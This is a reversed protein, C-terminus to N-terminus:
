GNNKIFEQLENLSLPKAYFYGQLVDCKHEKLWDVEAQIEVGEAVVIADKHKSIALISKILSRDHASKTIQSIFYRDIKIESVPIKSIYSLSSYGTGFDDLSIKFGLSNLKYLIESTKTIDHIMVGETIELTVRNPAIKTKEVITIINSAFDDQLLEVPSINVSLNLNENCNTNVNLIELCATELIYNDLKGILNNKEAIYIFQDPRIFGIENSHWRVLAEVGVIKGTFCKIQPQYVIKIENKEIANPLLELVKAEFRIQEEMKTSFIAYNTEKQNKLETLVMIAQNFKKDLDLNEHNTFVRIGMICNLHIRSQEFKFPVKFINDITKIYQKVDENNNTPQPIFIIFEDSGYRSIYDNNFSSQLRKSIKALIDDGIIHGYYKNIFSFNKIDLCILAYRQKFKSPNNLLLTINKKLAAFRLLKTVNDFMLSNALKLKLNNSKNRAIFIFLIILTICIISSLILITLYQHIFDDLTSHYDINITSNLIIENIVDPNATKIAKDLILNLNKNNENELLHLSFKYNLLPIAQLNSYIPRQKLFIAFYEDLLIASNKTKLNALCDSISCYNIKINTFDQSIENLYDLINYKNPIFLNIKQNRSILHQSNAYIKYNGKIFSLSNSYRNDINSNFIEAGISIENNDLAAKLAKLNDYFKYLFKIGIRKALNNLINISIGSNKNNNIYSFPANNRLVGIYIQKNARIYKAETRTIRLDHTLPNKNVWKAYLEAEANIDIQHLKNIAKDILKIYSSFNQGMFYFPTTPFEDIIKVNDHVLISEIAVLDVEKNKLAAMLDKEDAYYFHKFRLNNRRKYNAFFHSIVNDKMLGVKLNQLHPYDKFYINNNTKRTLLVGRELGFYHKSFDFYRERYKTKYVPLLLDLQNHHLKQLLESWTGEVWRYEFDGLKSLENLYEVGFGSYNGQNDKEFIGAFNFFGVRIIHTSKTPAAAFTPNIFLGWILFITPIVKLIKKFNM